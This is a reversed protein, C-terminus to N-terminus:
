VETLMSDPISTKDFVEFFEKDTVAIENELKAIKALRKETRLKEKIKEIKYELEFVRSSLLRLRDKRPGSKQSRRLETNPREEVDERSTAQRASPSDSKINVELKLPLKDTM